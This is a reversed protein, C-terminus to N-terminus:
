NAGYMIVTVDQDVKGGHGDDLRVTSTVTITEGDGLFDLNRDSITYGWDITGNNTNSLKPVILFSNKFDLVQSSSIPAITGNANHYVVDQSVIGAVPRATIDADTFVIAGAASHVTDGNTVLSAEIAT